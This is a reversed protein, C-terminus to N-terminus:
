KKKRLYKVWIFFSVFLVPVGIGLSLGLILEIKQGIRFKISGINEYFESDISLHGGEDAVVISIQHLGDTIEGLYYKVKLPEWYKPFTINKNEVLQNDLYIFYEGTFNTKSRFNYWVNWEFYQNDELDVFIPASTIPSFRIREMRYYEYLEDEEIPSFLKWVIEGENSVEIAKSGQSEGLYATHGFVGLKNNNPLLDCDGWIISWYDTPAFWEWTVNAQMKDEDITIEVLRSHRNMADTQNHFDNDFLLFRDDGIKELSHSHFFLYDRQNGYIDYMTFNGHEGLGWILDGTQHDIKYFTNTSRCNLYMMDEDEDFVLSNAHTLDLIALEDEFPCTQWLEVYNRTDISRILHGTSNYENILDFLYTKENIDVEYSDLTFYTDRLHDMEIEHHGEFYLNVTVNTEINWLKAGGYDGYILTTSNIFEISQDALLPESSIGREIIINGDLDTIVIKRSLFGGTSFNNQELVLLNYGEFRNSSTEDLSNQILLNTSISISGNTGTIQTQLLILIVFVAVLKSYSSLNLSKNIRM